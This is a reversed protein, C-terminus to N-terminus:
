PTARSHDVRTTDPGLAGLLTTREPPRRWSHLVPDSLDLVGNGNDGLLVLWHEGDALLDGPAVDAGWTLPRGGGSVLDDGIALDGLDDFSLPDADARGTAAVAALTRSSVVIRQEVLDSFSMGFAPLTVENRARPSEGEPEFGPVGFLEGAGAHVNEGLDASRFVAPYGPELVHELELSTVAQLPSVDDDAEVLEARAYLRSTGSGPPTTSSVEGLHDDNHIEPLRLARLTRGMEPALFTRFRLREAANEATLVGGLYSSEVTFWFVRVTRDPDPWDASQIHPVMEGDIALEPAPSLWQDARGPRGLRLALAVEVDDGPAVRRRGDRFVPDTRTGTVIKVEVLVPRRSERLHRIVFPSAIAAVLVGFVIVLLRSDSSM